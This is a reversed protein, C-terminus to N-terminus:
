EHIHSSASEIEHFSPPFSASFVYWHITLPLHGLNVVVENMLADWRNALEAKEAEEDVAKAKGKSKSLARGRLQLLKFDERLHSFQLFVYLAWFRTSWLGLKAVDLPIKKSVFPLSISKPLLGNVRLYYLHELPYYALMSWGQLREITLLERTPPPMRELSTLWQYIPLLGAILNDARRILRQKVSVIGWFRWLM